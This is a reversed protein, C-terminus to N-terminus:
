SGRPDKALRITYREGRLDFFAPFRNPDCVRLLDFQEAISRTPDIRSHDPTRRPWYTARREDQLGPVIADRERIAVEILQLEASFLRENIEDFLETGDLMFSRQAWIRGRDVKDAAELLSVVVQNAGNVIAWIHPSWGRGEPLNSAHLVLTHRYRHMEDRGVLRTCSVLFLLEGGPLPDHGTVLTVAALNQRAAWEQLRGYVPHLPDSCLLTIAVRDHGRGTSRLLEKEMAQRVRATGLGDILAMGRRAMTLHLDPSQALLKLTGAVLDVTVNSLDGLWLAAPERALATAAPRQNEALTLLITPLGLCCREWSTAGSAGISLWARTMLEAMDAGGEHLRFRPDRACTARIAPLHPNRTGVVVDVRVGGLDACTIAEIALMTAGDADIGGFYILVRPERAIVRPECRGQRLRPFEARLLAYDPGVLQVAHEALGAYRDPGVQLNQDVLLDIAHQRDALDDIAMICRTASRVADEWRRDLAYHDVVIWDWGEGIEDITQKADCQQSTGLWASHPLDGDHDGDPPPLLSLSYGREAVWERSCGPHDRLVFHCQHGAVQLADALTLCRVLHGTGIADSADTRIAVRM